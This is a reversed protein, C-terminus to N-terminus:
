KVWARVNLSIPCHDSIYQNYLRLDREVDANRTESVHDTDCPGVMTLDGVINADHSYWFQDLQHAHEQNNYTIYPNYALNMGARYDKFVRDILYKDDEERENNPSSHSNFDGTVLVPIRRSHKAEVIHKAIEEAQRLRKHTQDPFAKLHVGIVRFLPEGKWTTIVGHLAPRSHPSDSAVEEIEYNDDTEDRYFRLHKKHCLVVYQHTKGRNDYTQCYMTNGLVREELREPDVIEQFVIVDSDDLHEEIFNRLHYDRDQSSGKHDLGYWKVNFSTVKVNYSAGWGEVSIFAILATLFFITFASRTHRLTAFGNRM